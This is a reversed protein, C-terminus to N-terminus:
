TSFYFTFYPSPRNCILSETYFKGFFYVLLWCWQRKDSKQPLLWEVLKLMSSHNQSHLTLIDLVSFGASVHLMWFSLPVNYVFADTSVFMSYNKWLKCLVSENTKSFMFSKEPIAMMRWHEPKRIDFHMVFNLNPIKLTRMKCMKSWVPGLEGCRALNIKNVVISGISNQDFNCCTFVYWGDMKGFFFQM